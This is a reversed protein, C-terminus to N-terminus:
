SVTIYVILDDKKIEAPRLFRDLVLVRFRITEGPKYIAKDTQIFLSVNKSEVSLQSEHEFVIGSLGKAM